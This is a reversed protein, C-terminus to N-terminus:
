RKRRKGHTRTDGMKTKRLKIYFFALMTMLFVISGFIILVSVWVPALVIWWSMHKFLVMKLVLLALTMLMIVIFVMEGRDIRTDGVCWRDQIKKNM